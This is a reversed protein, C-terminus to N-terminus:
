NVLGYIGIIMLIAILAGVIIEINRIINDKKKFSNYFKLKRKRVPAFPTDNFNGNPTNKM